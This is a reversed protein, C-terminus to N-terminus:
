TSAEVASGEPLAKKRSHGKPLGSGNYLIDKSYRFNSVRYHKFNVKGTYELRIEVGVGMRLDHGGIIEAVVQGRPQGSFAMAEQTFYYRDLGRLCLWLNPLKSHLLQIASIKKGKPLETWLCTKATFSAGDEFNVLWM